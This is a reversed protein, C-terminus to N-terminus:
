GYMHRSWTQSNRRGTWGGGGGVGKGGGWGGVRVVVVM